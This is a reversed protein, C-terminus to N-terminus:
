YNPHLYPNILENLDKTCKLLKDPPIDKYLFINLIMPTKQCPSPAGLTHSIHVNATDMNCRKIVTNVLANIDPSNEILCANYICRSFRPLMIKPRKSLAHKHMFESM